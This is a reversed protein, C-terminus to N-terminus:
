LRGVNKGGEEAAAATTVLGGSSGGRVVLEEVAKLVEGELPGKAIERVSEELEDWARPSLVIADRADLASHYALWRM